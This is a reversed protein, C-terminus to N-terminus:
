SALLKAKMVILVDKQVLTINKTYKATAGRRKSRLDLDKRM